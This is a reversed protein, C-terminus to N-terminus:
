KCSVRYSIGVRVAANKVTRAPYFKLKALNQIQLTKLLRERRIVFVFGCYDNDM